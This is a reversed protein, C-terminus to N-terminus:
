LHVNYAKQKNTKKQKAHNNQSENINNCMALAWKKLENQSSNWLLLFWNPLSKKPNITQPTKKRPFKQRIWPWLYKEGIAEKLLTISEPKVNLNIIWRSIIKTHSTCYQNFSVKKAPLYGTTGFNNISFFTEEGSFQRQVKTSFWDVVYIHSNIKPSKM